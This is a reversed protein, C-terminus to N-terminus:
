QTAVCYMPFLPKELTLMALWYFAHGQPYAAAQRNMYAIHAERIDNQIHEELVYFTALNYAMVANGSPMAGDYTERVRMILKENNIGNLYFGGTSEDFFGQAAKECLDVARRLYATDCTAHHLELLGMALYAYDDLFGPVGRKGNCWSAYLMDEDM